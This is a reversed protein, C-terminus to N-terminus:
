TVQQLIVDSLKTDQELALGEIFLVVLPVDRVSYKMVLDPSKNIDVRAIKVKTADLKMMQLVIKNSNIDMAAGWLVLVPLPQNQLVETEFNQGTLELMIKGANYLGQCFRFTHNLPILRGDDREGYHRTRHRMRNPPAGCKKVIYVYSSVRVQVRMTNQLPRRESWVLTGLLEVEPM